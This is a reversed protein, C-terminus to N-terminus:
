GGRTKEETLPASHLTDHGQLSAIRPLPQQTKNSNVDEMRQQKQMVYEGKKGDRRETSQRWCRDKQMELRDAM